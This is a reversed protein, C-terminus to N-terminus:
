LTDDATIFGRRVVFARPVITIGLHDIVEIKGSKIGRWVTPVSVGTLAPDVQVSGSITDGSPVNVFAFVVASGFLGGIAVANNAEQTFNVVAAYPDGQMAAPVDSFGGSGGVCISPGNLSINVTAAKSGLGQAVIFLVTGRDSM